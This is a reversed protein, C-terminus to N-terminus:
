PVAPTTTPRQGIPLGPQCLTFQGAATVRYDFEQGAATQWVVWYGDVIAQTYLLGPQPCGLSGDPWTVAEARSLQLEAAPRGTRAEVDAQLRAMLEAPLEGVEAEATPPVTALGAPIPRTPRAPIEPSAEPTATATPAATPSASVVAPPAAPQRAPTVPMSLPACAGLGLTVGCLWLRRAIKLKM